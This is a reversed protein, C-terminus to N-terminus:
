TPRYALAYVRNAAAAAPVLAASVVQALLKHKMQPSCFAVLATILDLNLENVKFFFVFLIYILLCFTSLSHTLRCFSEFCLLPAKILQGICITREYKLRRREAQVLKLFYKLM